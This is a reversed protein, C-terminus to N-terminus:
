ASGLYNIAEKLIDINDNALGLMCNCKSCLLGRVKGIKHSHNISLQKIGHKNTSTEPKSCIRCVGNQKEFLYNYEQLTVGYRKINNQRSKVNAKKNTCSRCLRYHKRQHYVPWNGDNLKVKCELCISRNDRISFLHLGQWLRNSYLYGDISAKSVGCREALDERSDFVEQTELIIYSAKSM